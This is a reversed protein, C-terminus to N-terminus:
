ITDDPTNLKNNLKNLENDIPILKYALEQKIANAQNQLSTLVENAEFKIKDKETILDFMRAKIEITTM